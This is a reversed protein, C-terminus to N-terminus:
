HAKKEPDDATQSHDAGTYTMGGEKGCSRQKKIWEKMVEADIIKTENEPEGKVTGYYPRRGM